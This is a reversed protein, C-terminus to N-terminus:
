GYFTTKYIIKGEETNWVHFGDRTQIFLRKGSSSLWSDKLQNVKGELTTILELTKADLVVIQRNSEGYADNKYLLVSRGDTSYKLTNFKTQVGGYYM